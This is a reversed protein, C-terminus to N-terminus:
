SLVAQGTENPAPDTLDANRHLIQDRDRQGLAPEACGPQSDGNDDLGCLEFRELFHRSARLAPHFQADGALVALCGLLEDGVEVLIVLLPALSSCGSLM